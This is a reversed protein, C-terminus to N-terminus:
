ILICIPRNKNYCDMPRLLKKELDITYIHSCTGICTNQCTGECRGACTSACGASCHQNCYSNCGMPESEVAKAIVPSSLLTVAGIIPLAKKAAEKFFERRSQTEKKNNKMTRKTLNYEM